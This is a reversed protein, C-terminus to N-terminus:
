FLNLHFIDQSFSACDIESPVYRLHEKGHMLHFLRPIVLSCKRAFYSSKALTHGLGVFIYVNRDIQNM